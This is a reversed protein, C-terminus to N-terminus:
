KLCDWDEPDVIPSVLDGITKGKGILHSPTTRKPTPSFPTEEEVILTARTTKVNPKEGLWKIRDGDITVDYRKLM